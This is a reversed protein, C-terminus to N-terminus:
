HNGRLSVPRLRRKIYHRLEESWAKYRDLPIQPNVPLNFVRKAIRESIPCSQRNYGMKEIVSSQNMAIRFRSKMSVGQETLERVLEDRALRNDKLLMSFLSLPQGSNSSRVPLSIEEVDSLQNFLNEVIEARRDVFGDLKKLQEIGLSAAIESMRYNYGLTTPTDPASQGLRSFLRAREEIEQNNTVLMGGEGTSLCKGDTFSYTGVDGFTGTYKGNFKAGLSHACDEVIKIGYERSLDLAGEINAPHGYIHLLLLAKTKKSIKKRADDIDINYSSGEIDAFIPVCGQQLISMIAAVCTFAPVIIEDGRKCGISHYAAHMAATGSSMAVGFKTGFKNSFEAELDLVIRGSFEDSLIGSELVRIVSELEEQGVLSESNM